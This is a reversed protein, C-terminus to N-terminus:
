VHARGIDKSEIILSSKQTTADYSVSATVGIGRKNVADAIKQQAGRNTDNSSINISFSYAKGGTEVTFSNYGADFNNKVNADLRTGENKQAFALSKIQVDFSEAKSKAFKAFDTKLKLADDNKTAAIMQEFVPPVGKLMKDAAEKLKLSYNKIDGSYAQNEVTTGYINGYINNQGYQSQIQSSKLINYNSKLAYSNYYYISSFDISSM